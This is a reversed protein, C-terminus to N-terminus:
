LKIDKDYFDGLIICEYIKIQGHCLEYKDIM